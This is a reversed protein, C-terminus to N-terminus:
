SFHTAFDFRERCQNKFYFQQADFVFLLLRKAFIWLLRPFRFHLCCRYEGDKKIKEEKKRAM